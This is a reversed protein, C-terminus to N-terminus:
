QHDFNMFNHFRQINPNWTHQMFAAFHTTLTNPLRQENPTTLACTLLLARTNNDVYYNHTRDPISHITHQFLNTNDCM